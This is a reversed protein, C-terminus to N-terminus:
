PPGTYGRHNTQGFGPKKTIFHWGFLSSCLFRSTEIKSFLATIGFLGIESSSGGRNVRKPPDPWFWIEVHHFVIRILGKFFISIEIKFFMVAIRVLGTKKEM